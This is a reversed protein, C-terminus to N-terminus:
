RIVRELIRNIDAYMRAGAERADIRGFGLAELIDTFGDRVRAHEFYGSESLSHPLLAIQQNGEWGLGRPAGETELVAVAKRSVPVGRQLGFAKVAEPDNLIFDLLLAAERPHATNRNIALMMAPRYLLGADRAGPRLPYPALVVKQGPELTEVMKGIASTWQYTGAWRGTIWPRMEQPALHGYSARERASPIVHQDVLQQYLRAMEVLDEETPNLRGRAEDIFPMHIRQMVWSRGLAVFDQFTLDLPYYDPGLRERFIPGAALLEEWSAPVRLGAKAYTTENFYFLRAAMSVPLANLHGHVTGTRLADEDFQKLDVIDALKNLDYFGKGDRSFLVLWNWNIQMVDPATRGAIQTTLRELHGVWGTYEGKVKIHPYRAGFREISTLYARHVENGGWWSMRLHIEKAAGSSASAAASAALLIIAFLLRRM